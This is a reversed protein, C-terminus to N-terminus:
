LLLDVTTDAVGVGFEVTRTTLRGALRFGQATAFVPLGAVARPRIDRRAHSVPRYRPNFRDYEVTWRTPYERIQLHGGPEDERYVRVAGKHLSWPFNAPAIRDDDPLTPAASKPVSVTAGPGLARALGRAEDWGPAELREGM